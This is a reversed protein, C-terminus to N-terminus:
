PTALRRESVETEARRVLEGCYRIAVAMDSVLVRIDDVREVHIV